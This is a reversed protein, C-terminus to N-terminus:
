ADICLMKRLAATPVVMRRGIRLVPIEGTHIANYASQRSIGLVESAEPVSCTPKDLVDM